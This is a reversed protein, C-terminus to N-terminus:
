ANCGIMGTIAAIRSFYYLRFGAASEDEKVPWRTNHAVPFLFTCNM